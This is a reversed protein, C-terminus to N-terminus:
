APKTFDAPSIYAYRTPSNEDSVDFSILFFGAFALTWFLHFAACCLSAIWFFIPSIDFLLIDIGSFLICLGSSLIFFLGFFFVLEGLWFLVRDVVVTIRAGVLFEQLGIEFSHHCADIVLVAWNAVPTTPKSFSAVVDCADASSM